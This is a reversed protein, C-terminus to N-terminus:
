DTETLICTKGTCIHQTDIFLPRMHTSHSQLDAHLSCIESYCENSLFIIINRNMTLLFLKKSMLVGKLNNM